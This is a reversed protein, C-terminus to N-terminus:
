DAEDAALPAAAADAVRAAGAPYYNVRTAGFSRFLEQVDEARAADPGLYAMVTLDAPAPPTAAARGADARGRWRALFGRAPPPPAGPAAREIVTLQGETLGLEGLAALLEAQRPSGGAFYGNVQAARDFMRAAGDAM